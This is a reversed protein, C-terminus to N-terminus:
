GRQGAMFADIRERIGPRAMEEPTMNALDEETLPRDTKTFDLRKDSGAGSPSRPAVLEPVDQAVGDVQAQVHLFSPNGDNDPEIADLDMLRIARQIRAPEKVGREALIDKIGREALQRFHSKRVDAIETDKAELQAKLNTNEEKLGAFQKFRERFLADLEEQTEIPKFEAM